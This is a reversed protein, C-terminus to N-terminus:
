TSLDKPKFLKWSVINYQDISEFIRQKSEESKDHLLFSALFSILGHFHWGDFTKIKQAIGLFKERVDKYHKLNGIKKGHCHSVENYRVIDNGAMTSLIPLQDDNLSLFSRLATRNYEKTTLAEFDFHKISFYRWKGPFILFDSDEAIIAITSPNNCAFQAIEADCEKTLSVKFTGYEDALKALVGLGASNGPIQHLEWNRLIEIIPIKQNVKDIMAIVLKYHNNGRDIFTAEKEDAIPGDQFFVLDAIESLARFIKDVKKFYARQSGGYLMDVIDENVLPQLGLFDFILTPKQGENNRRFAPVSLSCEHIM